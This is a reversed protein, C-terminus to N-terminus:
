SVNCGWTDGPDRPTSRTHSGVQLRRSGPDVRGSIHPCGKWHSTPSGVARRCLSASPWFGFPKPNPSRSNLPQPYPPIPRTNLSQLTSTACTALAPIIESPSTLCETSHPPSQPEPMNTTLIPTSEAWTLCAAKAGLNKHTVTQPRLVRLINGMMARTHLDFAVPDPNLTRKSRKIHEPHMSGICVMISCLISYHVLCMGYYLIIDLVHALM